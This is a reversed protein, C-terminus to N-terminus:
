DRRVCRVDRSSSKSSVSTYGSPLIVFWARGSHDSDETSSWFYSTSTFSHGAQNYIGNLYAQQLEKQTPLYWDGDAGEGTKSELSLTACENIADGCDANSGDYSSGRPSEAFFPCNAHTSSFSNTFQGQSASWYLGTRNDFWVNSATNEWTSEEDGSEGDGHDDSYKYDDYEEYSQDIYNVSAESASRIRNWYAGWDGWAGGVEYGKDDSVLQDYLEQIRSTSGSDPSEGTQEGAVQGSQQNNTTGALGYFALGGILLSVIVLAATPLSKKKSKAKEKEQNIRVKQVM